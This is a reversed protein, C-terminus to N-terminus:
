DTLKELTWQRNKCVAQIYKLKKGFFRRYLIPAANVCREDERSIELGATFDPAWVQYLDPLSSALVLREVM